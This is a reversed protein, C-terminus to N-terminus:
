PKSTLASSVLFKELSSLIEITAAEPFIADDCTM